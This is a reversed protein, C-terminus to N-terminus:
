GFREAYLEADFGVTVKGDRVLVPRKILTPHACLLRLARAEDLNAKEEASLKRWTLGRKNLLRSWDVQTMWERLQAETAGEKKLDHFTYAIGRADLWARAKRVSGCQPIGYIDM